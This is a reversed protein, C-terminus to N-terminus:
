VLRLPWGKLSSTVWDNLMCIWSQFLPSDQLIIIWWGVFWWEDFQRPWTSQNKTEFWFFSGWMWMKLARMPRPATFQSFTWPIPAQFCGSWRTLYVVHVTPPRSETFFCTPHAMPHPDSPQSSCHNYNKITLLRIKSHKTFIIYNYHVFVDPNCYSSLLIASSDSAVEWNLLFTVLLSKWCWEQPMSWAVNHKCNSTNLIPSEWCSSSNWPIENIKPSDQAPGTALKLALELLQTSESIKKPSAGLAGHHGGHQCVQFRLFHVAILLPGRFRISQTLLQLCSRCWFSSGPRDLTM